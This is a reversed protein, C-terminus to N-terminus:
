VALDARRRHLPRARHVQRRSRARDRGRPCRPRVRRLQQQPTRRPPLRPTSLRGVQRSNEAPASDKFNQSLWAAGVYCAFTDGGLGALFQPGFQSGPATAPSHILRGLVSLAEINAQQDLVVRGEDDFVGGGNQQMLLFYIDTAEGSSLPMMHTRGNSKAALEEGVRIFDDWTKISEPDIGYKEFIWRKYYVACPGIDWPVAYVKGDYVCSNWFSPPFDTPTSEGGLRESDALRGTSSFRMAEREQLQAVDPGGKGAVLSLLLRSQLMTGNQEVAVGIDPHAAEFSDTTTMLALAATNWSWVDVQERDDTRATRGYTPLWTVLAAVSALVILVIIKGAM